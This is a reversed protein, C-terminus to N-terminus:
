DDDDKDQENATNSVDEYEEKSYIPPVYIESGSGIICVGNSKTM